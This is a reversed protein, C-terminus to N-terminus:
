NTKPIGTLWALGMQPLRDDQVFLAHSQLAHTTLELFAVVQRRKQFAGELRRQVGADRSVASLVEAFVQIRWGDDTRFKKRDSNAIKLVQMGCDHSKKTIRKRM